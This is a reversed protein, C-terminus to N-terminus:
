VRGGGKGKRTHTHSTHIPPPPVHPLCFWITSSPLLLLCCCFGVHIRHVVVPCNHADCLIRSFHISWRLVKESRLHDILLFSATWRAFLRSFPVSLTIPSHRFSVHWNSYTGSHDDDLDHAGFSLLLTHETPNITLEAKCSQGVRSHQTSFDLRSRPSEIGLYLWTLM